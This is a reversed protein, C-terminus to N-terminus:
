VTRATLIRRQQDLLEGRLLSGPARRGSSDTAREGVITRGGPRRHLTKVAYVM